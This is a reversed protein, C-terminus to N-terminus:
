HKKAKTHRPNTMFLSITLFLFPLACIGISYPFYDAFKRRVREAVTPKRLHQHLSKMRLQQVSGEDADTDEDTHPQLRSAQVLAESLATEGSFVGDSEHFLFFSDSDMNVTLLSPATAGYKKLYKSHKVADLVGIVLEREIDGHVASAAQRLDSLEKSHHADGDEGSMDLVAILFNKGLQGLTKFNKADIMSVFPRGHFAVFDHLHRTLAETNWAVDQPAIFPVRFDLGRELKEVSVAAADAPLTGTWRLLRVVGRYEEAVRVFAGELADRSEPAMSLLIVVGHEDLMGRLESESSVALISDM